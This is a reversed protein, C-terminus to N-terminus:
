FHKFFSYESLFKYHNHNRFFININSLLDNLYKVKLFEYQIEIKLIM